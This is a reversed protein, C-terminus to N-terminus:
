CPGRKVKLHRFRSVFLDCYRWHTAIRRGDLLGAGAFIFAGPVFQRLAALAPNSLIEFSYYPKGKVTPYTFVSLPGTLDLVEFPSAVLFAIVRSQHRM